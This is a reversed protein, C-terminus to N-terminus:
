IEPLRPSYLLICFPLFALVEEIECLFLLIMIAQPIIISSHHMIHLTLTENGFHNFCGSSSKAVTLGLLQCPLYITRVDM